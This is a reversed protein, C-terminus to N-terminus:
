KWREKGEVGLREVAERVRQSQERPVVLVADATAVIVLDRVGIAAVLPGDSRILCGQADIALADGDVANGAPDKAAQEHLAAFSGIDSWGVATPVVAVREAKEMLAHDISQAPAAAFEDAGPRLRRGDGQQAAVAARAAALIAPAHRELGALLADARMLFIGGNWDYGGEAVFRRATDADPKEVFREAAFVGEALAAGRRIYGYGTEPRDPAMGFTVIWGQRALPLGAQVAAAFGEGDAVVHDSPLVLLVDAPAANLAALAIAPATNRPCPELILAGIGTVEREVAEAQEAPAVVVPPAFIAADAVRRATQRLMTEAGTLALMQKPRAARSLPWLRTGAGGSLIVPLIREAPTETM